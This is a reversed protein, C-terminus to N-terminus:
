GQTARGSDGSIPPPQPATSFSLGSFDRGQLVPGYQTGGSITNLADGQGTRVSRAQEQWQELGARFEADLTARASLATSLAHARAADAPAQRLAVLEATGSTTAPGDCAEAGRQFPRQVLTSLGSWMQRGLEGGAGGALAVLLGVSVPDVLIVWRMYM